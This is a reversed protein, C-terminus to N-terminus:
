GVSLLLIPTPLVGDRLGSNPEHCLQYGWKYVIIGSFKLDTLALFFSFAKNHVM